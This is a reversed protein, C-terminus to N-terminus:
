IETLSVSRPKEKKCLLDVSDLEDSENWEMWSGVCIVVVRTTGSLIWLAM